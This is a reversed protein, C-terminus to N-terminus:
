VVTKKQLTGQVQIFITIIIKSLRLSESYKELYMEFFYRFILQVSTWSISHFPLFFFNTPTIIKHPKLDSKALHKSIWSFFEFRQSLREDLTLSGFNKPHKGAWNSVRSGEHTEFVSAKQCCLEFMGRPVCNLQVLVQFCTHQLVPGLLFERLPSDAGVRTDPAPQWSLKPCLFQMTLAISEPHESPQCVCPPSFLISGPLCADPTM